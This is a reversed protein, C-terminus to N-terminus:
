NIFTISGVIKNEDKAVVIKYNAEPDYKKYENIQNSGDFCEDILKKYSEIDAKKLIEIEM